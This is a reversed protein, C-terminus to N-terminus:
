VTGGFTAGNTTTNGADTVAQLDGTSADKIENFDVKYSENGRNVLFLDTNQITM